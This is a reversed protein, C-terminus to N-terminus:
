SSLREVPLFLGLRTPLSDWLSITTRRLPPLVMKLHKANKHYTAAIGSKTPEACFFCLVLYGMPCDAVLVRGSDFPHARPRGLGLISDCIGTPRASTLSFPVCMMGALWHLM